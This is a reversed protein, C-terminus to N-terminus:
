NETIPEPESETVSIFHGPCGHGFYNFGECPKGFPIVKWGKAQCEALYARADKDSTESGDDNTFIKIKKGKHNRLCGEISMCMHHKVQYTKGKEIEESKMINM